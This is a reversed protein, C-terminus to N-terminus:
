NCTKSSPTKYSTKTSSKKKPKKRNQFMKAEAAEEAKRLKEREEPPPFNHEIQDVVSNKLETKNGLCVLVKKIVTYAFEYDSELDKRKIGLSLFIDKLENSIKGFTFQRTDINCSVNLLSKLNNHKYIIIGDETYNEDYKKKGFKEKLADYYVKLKENNQKENEVKKTTKGFLDDKFGSLRKIVSEFGSAEEESEFLIGMFGSDIEFSRFTPALNEFYQHFNNYLEYQFLKEYTFPDFISLYIIKSQENILLCCFGEVDSYLWNKGEKDCSYLKANYIEGYMELNSPIVSLIKKKTLDKAKFAHEHM